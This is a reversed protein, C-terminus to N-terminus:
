DEKQDSGCEHTEKEFQTGETPSLLYGCEGLSPTRIIIYGGEPKM